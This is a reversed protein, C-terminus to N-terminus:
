NLRARGHLTQNNRLRHANAWKSQHLQSRLNAKVNGNNLMMVLKLKYGNNVGDTQKIWWAAIARISPPADATTIIDRNM